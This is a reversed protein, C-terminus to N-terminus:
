QPQLITTIDTPPLNDKALSTEFTDFEQSNGLDEDDAPEDFDYSQEDSVPFEEDEDDEEEKLPAVDEDKQEDEVKDNEDEKPNEEIAKEEEPTEVEEKTNQQAEPEIQEEEKKNQEEQKRAEEEEEKRKQDEIERIKEEEERKKREEIERIKNEEEEKAKEEEQQAIRALMEDQNFEKFVIEDSSEEEEEEEEAPKEEVVIQEVFGRRPPNEQSRDTSLIQEISAEHILSQEQILKEEELAKQIRIEEEEALKQNEAERRSMEEEYRKREEEEKRLKEEEELKALREAEEEDRKQQIAKWKIINNNVALAFKELQSYSKSILKFTNLVVFNFFGLKSKEKDIHARDIQVHYTMGEALELEGQQFFESALDDSIADAIEFERSARNIDACKLVMQMLLLRHHKDEIHFDNTTILKSYQNYFSMHKAMDTSLILKIITKWMKKFQPQEFYKFLNCEDKSLVNIAENCHHTEMVSQNESLISRALEVHDHRDRIFDDHGADHCLAAVILALIEFKTFYHDLSSETLIIIVFHMTDVAHKWNHYPVDKYSKSIDTIFMFLTQNTIQYEYKLDFKDFAAFVIKILGLDDCKYVDYEPEFAEDEVMLLDPTQYTDRDAENIFSKLEYHEEGIEALEKLQSIEVSLAAISAFSELLNIEEQTGKSSCGFEMAGIVTQNPNLLPSCCVFSSVTLGDGRPSYVRSMSDIAEKNSKSLKSRDSCFITTEKELIAKEVFETGHPNPEGVNVFEFISNDSQHILFFTARSAAIVEQARELISQIIKQASSLQVIGISTRICKKMNNTVYAATEFTKANQIASGIFPAISTLKEEDVDLFEELNKKNLVIAIAIVNRADNMIPVALLSKPDKLDGADTKSNFRMDKALNSCRYTNRTSYCYGAIGNNLPSRKHQTINLEFDRIFQNHEEDVLLIRCIEANVIMTVREQIQKVLLSIDLCSTFVAASDLTNMIKDELQEIPIPPGQAYGGSFALSRAIFPMLTMLHKEDEGSYTLGNHNGRLGISWVRNAFEYTGILIPKEPDGDITALYNPHQRLTAERISKKMRLAQGIIGSSCKYVTKFGNTKDYRAFTNSKEHFFWYDIKECIFNVQLCKSISYVTRHIDGFHSIESAVTITRPQAFSTAGYIAFKRTIFRARNEDDEDFKPENRDRTMQVIAIVSGNNLYLPFFLQSTGMETKFYTMIEYNQLNSISIPSKSQVVNTIVTNTSHVSSNLEQSFFDNSDSREEWLITREVKFMETLVPQFAEHLPLVNSRSMMSDFYDENNLREEPNYYLEEVTVNALSPLEDYMDLFYDPISKRPNPSSPISPLDCFQVNRERNM